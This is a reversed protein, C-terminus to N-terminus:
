KTKCQGLGPLSGLIANQGVWCACLYSNIRKERKKKGPGIYHGHQTSCMALFCHTNVNLSVACHLPFLNRGIKIFVQLTCIQGFLHLEYAITIESTVKTNLPRTVSNPTIQGDKSRVNPSFLTLLSIIHSREPYSTLKLDWHDICNLLIPLVRTWHSLTNPGLPYPCIGHSIM